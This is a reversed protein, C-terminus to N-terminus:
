LIWYCFLVCKGVFFVDLNNKVYNFGKDRYNIYIFLVVIIIIYQIGVGEKLMNIDCVRRMISFIEEIVEEVCCELLYQWNIVM